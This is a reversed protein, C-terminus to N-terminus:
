HEKIAPQEGQDNEGETVDNKEIEQVLKDMLDLRTKLDNLDTISDLYDMYARLSMESPDHCIFLIFDAFLDLIEYLSGLYYRANEFEVELDAPNVPMRYSLYVQRLPEYYGFCGFSPFAGASITTNLENLGKLVGPVKADEINRALTTHFHLLPYLEDPNLGTEFAAEFVVTTDSVGLHEPMSRLVGKYEECSGFLMEISKRLEGEFDSISNIAM